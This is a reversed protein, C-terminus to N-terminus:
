QGGELNLRSFTESVTNVENLNLAPKNHNIGQNSAPVFMQQYGLKEAESIRSQLNQIARVEGSLGIEGLIVTKEPLQTNYFSSVIATAIALDAATESIRFGGVVNLYIDFGELNINTQKNLVAFLLSARNYDLGTTKRQARGAYNSHTVLAQIEVMIPRTGEMSCVTVAGPQNSGKLNTAFFRSPDPIELLGDKKMQFLGLLQTSGFRNKEPRIMRLNSDEKGEFYITADVLHEITKPGSFDGTKTVHGILLTTIEKHKAVRTFSQGLERVQKTSGLTSSSNVSHISQISDVIACIPEIQTLHNVAKELNGGSYIILNESSLNLRSARKKLQRASEEGSVYLVKGEKALNAAVQLMLTSKGIGPEGGLLVVSGRVLGGGLVRDFEGIQTTLRNQPNSTIDSLPKLEDAGLSSEEPLGDNEPPSSEKFTDWKGCKPCRGLWEISTFGCNTCKYAM